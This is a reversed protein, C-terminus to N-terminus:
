KKKKGGKDLIMISGGHQMPLSEMKKKNELHVKMDKIEAILTTIEDKVNQLERRKSERKGELDDSASKKTKRLKANAKKL